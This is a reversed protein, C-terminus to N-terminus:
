RKTSSKFKKSLEYLDVGDDDDSSVAENANRVSKNAFSGTM